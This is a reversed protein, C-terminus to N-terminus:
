GIEVYDGSPPTLGLDDCIAKNFKPTFNAAYEIAMTSIDAEGKLIKAAMKGTAVGLDYYSISLTAVGCGKCVNEEGAIVPIGAPRMVNDIIAANSAVTNDTPVYIVDCEDAASQAVAAADNSDSFPFQKCAIGMGELIAQVTDVQYVSNAEASCYILGVMQANPFWEAIM